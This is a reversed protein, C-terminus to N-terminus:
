ARTTIETKIRAIDRRNQRIKTPNELQGTKSQIQLNLQEQQMDAVAKVLEETTMERVEKMKM